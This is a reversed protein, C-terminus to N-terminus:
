AYTISSKYEISIGVSALRFLLVTILCKVKRKVGLSLLTDARCTILQTRILKRTNRKSFYAQSIRICVKISDTQRTLTNGSEFQQTLIPVSKDALGKTFNVLVVIYVSLLADVQTRKIIVVVQCSMATSVSALSVVSVIVDGFLTFTQNFYTRVRDILKVVLFTSLAM